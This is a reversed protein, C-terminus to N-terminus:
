GLPRPRSFEFGSIMPSVLAGDKLADDGTLLFLINDSQIGKHVWNVSHLYQRLTADGAVEKWTLSHLYAGDVELLYHILSM